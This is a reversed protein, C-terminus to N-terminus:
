AFNPQIGLSRLFEEKEKQLAIQKSHETQISPENLNISDRIGLEKDLEKRKASLKHLRKCM